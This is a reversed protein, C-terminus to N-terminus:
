KQLSNIYKLISESNEATVRMEGKKNEPDKKSDYSPLDSM